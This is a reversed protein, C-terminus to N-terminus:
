VTRREQVARKGTKKPRLAPSPASTSRRLGPGRCHFTGARASTLRWHLLLADLEAARRAVDAAPVGWTAPRVVMSNARQWLRDLVEAVDDRTGCVVFTRAMQRAGPPASTSRCAAAPEAM